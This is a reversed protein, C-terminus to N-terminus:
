VGVYCKGSEKGTGRITHELIIKQQESPKVQGKLTSIGWGRVQTNRGKRENHSKKAITSITYEKSYSPTPESEM